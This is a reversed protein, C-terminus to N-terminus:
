SQYTHLFYLTRVNQLSLYDGQNNCSSDSSVEFRLAVWVSFHYMYKVACGIWCFLAHNLAIVVKLNFKDWVFHTSVMDWMVILFGSHWAVQTSIIEDQWELSRAFPRVQRLTSFCKKIMIMLIMLFYEVLGV